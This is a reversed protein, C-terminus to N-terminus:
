ATHTGASNVFVRSQQERAVDLLCKQLVRNLGGLLAPEQRLLVERRCANAASHLTYGDM